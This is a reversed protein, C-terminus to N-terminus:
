TKIIDTRRNGKSDFLCSVFNIPKYGYGIWGINEDILINDINLKNM